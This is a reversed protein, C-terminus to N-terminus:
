LCCINDWRTAKFGSIKKVWVETREGYNDCSFKGVSDKDFIGTNWKKISSSRYFILHSGRSSFQRVAALSLALAGIPYHGPLYELTAKVTVKVHYQLTGIM